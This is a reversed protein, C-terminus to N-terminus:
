ETWKNSASNQRHSLDNLSFANRSALSSSIQKERKKKDRRQYKSISKSIWSSVNKSPQVFDEIRECHFRTRFHFNSLFFFCCCFRLSFLSFIKVLMLWSMEIFPLIDCHGDIDSCEFRFEISVCVLKLDSALPCGCSKQVIKTISKSASPDFDIGYSIFNLYLDQSKNLDNIRENTRKSVLVLILSFWFFLPRVGVMSSVSHASTSFASAASLFPAM